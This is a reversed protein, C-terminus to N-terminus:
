HNVIYKESILFIFDFLIQRVALKVSVMRNRIYHLLLGGNRSLIEDGKESLFFNVKGSGRKLGRFYNTGLLTHPSSLFSTIFIKFM